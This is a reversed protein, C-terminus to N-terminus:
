PSRVWRVEGFHPATTYDIGERAYSRTGDCHIRFVSSPPPHDYVFLPIKRTNKFFVRIYRNRLDICEGRLVANFNNESIKICTFRPRVFESICEEYFLRTELSVFGCASSRVIRAACALITLFFNNNNQKFYNEVLDEPLKTKKVIQSILVRDFSSEDAM